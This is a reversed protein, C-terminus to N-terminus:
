IRVQPFTSECSGVAPHRSIRFSLVLFTTLILLAFLSLASGVKISLPDFVFTVTHNGGPVAIARFLYNSRLIPIPRDDVFAKWGPYFVESLFLYGDGESSTKIVIRDPRYSLIVPKEKSSIGRPRDGLPSHFREGEELFMVNYPNFGPAKLAALAGEKSTLRAEPILFARPLYTERRVITKSGHSVEYKVNFLDMFVHNETVGYSFSVWGQPLKHDAYENLYEYTRTPFLATFGGVSQYGLSMEFNPGFPFPYSGLRFPEEDKGITEDLCIKVRDMRAYIRDDHRVGGGNVYGLDLMLLACLCALGASRNWLGRLTLFILLSSLLSFVTLRHFETGILDKALGMKSPVADPLILFSFFRLLFSPRVTFFLDLIVLAAVPIFLIVWRRSPGNRSREMLGDMGKGALLALAFVWLVIIKSPARFKDFGPVYYILQYLPTNKGMALLLSLLALSGAFAWFRRNNGQRLSLFPLLMLPLIGVYLNQHPISWPVNAVWFSNDAYNGFFHPLLVTILGEPPYSAKTVMEYTNLSARVSQTILEFAPVLQVSALATGTSFFLLIILFVRLFTKGSKGHPGLHWALFLMSAIFTYFADQPAGALIQAGWFSGALVAYTYPRQTTLAQYLFGIVAPLWIYSQVPSMHGLYLLAMVFGNCTFIASAVFSGGKQLGVRRSLAYMFIGALVFHLFMTVDYAKLPPIVWFLFGLPYFITSEFHAWFPMGGFINPNWFPISRHMHIEDYFFKKMPLYFQVFDMGILHHGGIIIDRFLYLCFGCLTALALLEKKNLLHSM